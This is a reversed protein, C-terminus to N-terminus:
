LEASWGLYAAAGTSLTTRLQTPNLTTLSTAELNFICSNLSSIAFTPVTTATTGGIGAQWITYQSATGSQELSTPAARMTVPFQSSFVSITTGTNAGTPTLLAGAANPFVKYYYRQCLGLETGISRFEFPTATSGKELQVGTIYFTASSTTNLQISGTAGAFGGSVWSGITATRNTSGSGMDFTIRLGRQNDTLWTGSTDGSITITKYEFTNASAITFSFVYSRDNASNRFSGSFTGTLSSRVWFSLTVTQANATGWGFDAINFGEIFQSIQANDGAAPTIATGTTYLFSNIYGSPAVTSRQATATGGAARNANFRDVAFLYAATGDPLAISAGANRQDITMSGNIIRNRMGTYPSLNGGVIGVSDDANITIATNASGPYAIDTLKLTSAM